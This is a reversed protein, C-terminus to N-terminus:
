KGADEGLMKELASSALYRKRSVFYLVVGLMLWIGLAWLSPTSLFGPAGPILLLGLFFVSLALGAAGIATAKADKEQRALKFAAACASIARASSSPSSTFGSHCTKLIVCCRGTSTIPNRNECPM